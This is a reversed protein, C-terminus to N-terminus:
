YRVSVCWCSCESIFVNLHTEKENIYFSLCMLQCGYLWSYVCMYWSSDTWSYSGGPLWGIVFIVHTHLSILGLSMWVTYNDHKHLCLFLYCRSNSGSLSVSRLNNLEIIQQFCILYSAWLLYIWDTALVLFLHDLSSFLLGVSLAFDLSVFTWFKQRVRSLSSHKVCLTHLCVSM